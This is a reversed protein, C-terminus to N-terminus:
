SQKLTTNNTHQTKNYYWHWRTLVWKCNLYIIYIHLMLTAKYFVFASIRRPVSVSRSQRSTDHSQQSGLIVAATEAEGLSEVDQLQSLCLSLSCPTSAPPTCLLQRFSRNKVNIMEESTGQCTLPSTLQEHSQSCLVMCGCWSASLMLPLKHLYHLHQLTYYPKLAVITFHTSIGTGNRPLPETLVNGRCRNCM